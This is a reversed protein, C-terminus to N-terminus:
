NTLFVLTFSNLYYLHIWEMVILKILYYDNRITEVNEIEEAKGQNPESLM